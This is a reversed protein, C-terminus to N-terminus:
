IVRTSESGLLDSSTVGSVAFGKRFVVDRLVWPDGVCGGLDRKGMSQSCCGKGCLLVKLGMNGCGNPFFAKNLVRITRIGLGGQNKPSCINNWNVWHIRRKGRSSGWLFDRQMSKTERLVFAPITFLSLFYLSISALVNKLLILKGGFSLYQGKWRALRRRMKELVPNWIGKSSPKAGLPLGFYNIPLPSVECGIISAMYEM